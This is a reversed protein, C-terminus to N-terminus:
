GPPYPSMYGSTEQFVTDGCTSEGGDKRDGLSGNRLGSLPWQYLTMGEANAFVPGDLETHIVQFGPPMPVRVYDERDTAEPSQWYVADATSQANATALAGFLLAVGL